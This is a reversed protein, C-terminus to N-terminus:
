LVPSQTGCPRIMPQDPLVPFEVAGCRCKWTISQLVRTPRGAM